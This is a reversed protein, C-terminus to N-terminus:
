RAGALRIREGAPRARARLRDGRRPRALAFRPTTASSRSARTAPQELVDTTVDASALSFTRVAPQRTTRSPSRCLNRWVREATSSSTTRAVAGFSWASCGAPELSRTVNRASAGARSSCRAFRSLCPRLDEWTRTKSMRRLSGRMPAAQEATRRASNSSASAADVGFGRWAGVRRALEIDHRSAAAIDLV